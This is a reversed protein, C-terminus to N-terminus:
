KNKSLPSPLSISRGGRARGRFEPLHGTPPDFRRGKLECAPKLGRLWVLWPQEALNKCLLICLGFPWLCSSLGDSPHLKTAGNVLQSSHSENRMAGWPVADM